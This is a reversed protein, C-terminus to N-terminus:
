RVSKWKEFEQVQGTKKRVKEDKPGTLRRNTFLLYHDVEAARVLRRIRPLEKKLIATFDAQSCSASANRTHKAQIIFQGSHPNTTSPYNQATGAFRGDKGGDKGVAFSFVGMGLVRMCIQITLKEFEEDNLEYLRYNKM